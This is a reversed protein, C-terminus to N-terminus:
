TLFGSPAHRIFGCLSNYIFLSLSSQDCGIDISQRANHALLYPALHRKGQLFGHLYGNSYTICFSHPCRISLSHETCFSVIRGM